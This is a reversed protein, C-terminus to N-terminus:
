EYKQGEDGEKGEEIDENVYWRLQKLTKLCHPCQMGEETLEPLTMIPGNCQSCEKPTPDNEALLEELKKEGKDVSPVYDFSWVVRCERCYKQLRFAKIEIDDPDPYNICAYKRQEKIKELFEKVEKHKSVKSSNAVADIDGMPWPGTITLATDYAICDENNCVFDCGVPM